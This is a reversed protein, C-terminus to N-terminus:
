EIVRHKFSKKGSAYDAVVDGHGRLKWKYTTLGELGVPGRAHVKGNSVGIEAGLGYRFGDAFRTSANHYVGASDVENLFREATGTDETVIADTHKSGYRNIHEIAEDLGMVIKVSIILDSYETRWDQETAAKLAAIDGGSAKLVVLTKPCGRVEVKAESFRAMMPSLFKAAIAEDVLLTEAANCVAPYQVKSDFTISIAKELDAARDVYVHCVGEGHGLVPIRSNQMVYHVLEYSGRPVILDVDQDMTLLQAFEERSRIRQVADSPVAPFRELATRWVNVIVENTHASESGGKMIVANSSKLTLSAVQSIVEPRSEFVIGIVGLACSEKVLVLGDDLETAGLRRGLPDPLRTVDRVRLAMEQVGANSVRLRKLMPASMKGAAVEKEAAACDIANAAVIEASAQELGDAVALLVENRVANSMRALRRSAARARAAIERVSQEVTSITTAGTAPTM